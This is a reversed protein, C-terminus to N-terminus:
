SILLTAIKKALDSPINTYKHMLYSRDSKGMKATEYVKGTCLLLPRAYLGPVRAGLPAYLTAKEESYKLMPMRIANAALYKALTASTSIGINEQLDTDSCYFYRFGLNTAFRLAGSRLGEFQVWKGVELDFYSVSDYTPIVTRKATERYTSMPVLSNAIKQPADVILEADLVKALENAFEVKIGSIKHVPSNMIQEVECSNARAMNRLSELQAQTCNGLVFLNEPCDSLYILQCPTLRWKIPEGLGNKEIEIAGLESLAELIQNTSLAQVELGALSAALSSFKGGTAFQLISWFDSWKLEPSTEDEIVPVLKSVNRIQAIHLRAEKRRRAESATCVEISQIGCLKCTGIVTKQGPLALPLEREHAGTYTCSAGSMTPLSITPTTSVSAESDTQWEAATSFPTEALCIESDAIDVHAGLISSGINPMAETATFLFNAKQLEKDHILTPANLLSGIDPNNGSTLTLNKWQTPKGSEFFTVSYEGEPLGLKNVDQIVVGNDSSIRRTRQLANEFGLDNLPEVQISVNEHTQSIARIEPAHTALWKTMTRYSPLRVGGAITLQSSVNPILPLFKFREDNAGLEIIQVETFMVWGNPLNQQGQSVIKFGPRAVRTLFAATQLDYDASANALVIIDQGLNAQDVEKYMQIENDFALVVLRKPERRYKKSNDRNEFEVVSGLVQEFDFINPNQLILTNQNKQIFDVNASAHKLELAHISNAQAYNSNLCISFNTTRSGLINQFSVLLRVKQSLFAPQTGNRSSSRGSEAFAGDWSTLEESFIEAIKERAGDKLWLSKIGASVQSPDRTIWASVLQEMDRSDVFSGPALHYFDFMKPLRARDATRVLAQSIPIGVHRQSIAYATPVGRSGGLGLLWTNFARWLYEATTRYASAFKSKTTEDAIGLLGQLHPYYANLDEGEEGMQEAALVTVALFAIMPPPTLTERTRQFHKIWATSESHIQGLMMPASASWAINKKVAAILDSKGSAGVLDPHGALQSFIDEDLDLYVREGAVHSNYFTDVLAQNWAVLDRTLM